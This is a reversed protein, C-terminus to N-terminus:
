DASEKREARPKLRFTIRGSNVTGSSGGYGSAVAYSEAAVAPNKAGIAALAEMKAKMDDFGIGQAGETTGRLIGQDESPFFGKKVQTFLLGTVVLTIASFVM